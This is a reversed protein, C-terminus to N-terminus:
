GELSRELLKRIREATPFTLISIGFFVIMPFIGSVVFSVDQAVLNGQIAAQVSLLCLVPGFSWASLRMAWARRLHNAIKDAETASAALVAPGRFPDRAVKQLVEVKMRRGFWWMGLGYGGIWVVMGLVSLLQVIVVGQPKASSAKALFTMATVGASSLMFAGHVFQLPRLRDPAVVGEIDLKARTKKPAAKKSSV